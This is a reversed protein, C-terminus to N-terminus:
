ADVGHRAATLFKIRSRYSQLNDLTCRAKKFVILFIANGNRTLFVRNRFLEDMIAMYSALKQLRFLYNRLSLVSSM